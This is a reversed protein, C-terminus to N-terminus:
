AATAAVPVHISGCGGGPCESADTCSAGANAGGVCGALLPVFGSGPDVFAQLDNSPQIEVVDGGVDDATGSYVVFWGLAPGPAAFTDTDMTVTVTHAVIDTNHFTAAG